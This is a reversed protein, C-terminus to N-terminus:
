FRVYYYPHLKLPTAKTIHVIPQLPRLHAIADTFVESVTHLDRNLNPHSTSYYKQHPGRLPMGVLSSSIPTLEGGGIWWRRGFIHAFACSITCKNAHRLGLDDIMIMIYMKCCNAHSIVKVRTVPAVVVRNELRRSTGNTGCM